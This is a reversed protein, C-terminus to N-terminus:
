SLAFALAGEHHDRRSLTLLTDGAGIPADDEPDFALSGDLRKIAVLIHGRRGRLGSTGVTAGDLASGPRVQQEEMEVDAELAAPRLVARAMRGGAIADPSAARTAGARLLKPVHADEHVSSVITMEPRLQRATMTILLNDPDSGTVAVLARARAIGATMLTADTTADGLVSQVGVGLGEAELAAPRRDIVVVAVGAGALDACIHRGVKGYGCVVVHQDLAGIRKEMRWKEVFARLEGTLITGLLETAAVAVTWIGGLALVVTLVRGAQSPAYEEGHGMSTLTVVAVFFSNFWSWRETLRYGVTGAGILAAPVSWYFALRWPV